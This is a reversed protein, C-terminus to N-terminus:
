GMRQEERGKGHLSQSANGKQMSQRLPTGMMYSRARCVLDGYEQSSPRVSSNFYICYASHTRTGKM